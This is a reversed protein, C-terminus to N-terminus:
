VNGPHEHEPHPRRYIDDHLHNAREVNRGQSM